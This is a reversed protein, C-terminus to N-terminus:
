DDCWNVQTYNQRDTRRGLQHKAPEAIRFGNKGSETERDSQKHQISQREEWRREIKHFKIVKNKISKRFHLSNFNTHIYVRRQNLHLTEVM